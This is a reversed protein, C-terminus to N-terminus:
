ARECPVYKARLGALDMRIWTKRTLNLRACPCWETCTESVDRREDGALARIAAEQRSEPRRVRAVLFPVLRCQTRVGGAQAAAPVQYPDRGPICLYGSPTQAGATACLGADDPIGAGATPVPDAGQDQRASVRALSGEM